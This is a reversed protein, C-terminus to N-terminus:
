PGVLWECRWRAHDRRALLACLGPLLATMEEALTWPPNVIALGCAALPGIAEPTDVHLEIVLVKGFGCTQLATEFRLVADRHKIPYWLMATGTPWKGAMAAIGEAMRDFEDTKEFPPDVLVLGRRERPPIQAKWATYGDIENIVIRNDRPLARRLAHCTEPHLENFSARDDARLAQWILAPSGPYRTAEPALQSLAARYPALVAEAEPDLTQERLRGIGEIWEGTRAAENGALDYMGAGAHTDIVRFPTQKRSLHALIRLLVVHKIVDAFNGAHFSHRYNM